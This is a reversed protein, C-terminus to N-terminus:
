LKKQLSPASMWGTAGAAVSAFGVYAWHSVGSTLGAASTGGVTVAALTAFAVRQSPRSM